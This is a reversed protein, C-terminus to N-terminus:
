IVSVRIHQTFKLMFVTKRRLLLLDIRGLPHRCKQLLARLIVYIVQLFGHTGTKSCKLEMPLPHQQPGIHFRFPTLM